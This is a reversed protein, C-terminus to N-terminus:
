ANNGAELEAIRNKLQDVEAELAKIRATDGEVTSEKPAYPELLMGSFAELAQAGRIEDPQLPMKTIHFDEYLDDYDAIYKSQM